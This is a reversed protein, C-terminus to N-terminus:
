TLPRHRMRKRQGEQGCELDGRDLGDADGGGGAIIHDPQADQGGCRPGLRIIRQQGVVARQGLDARRQVIGADADAIDLDDPQLGFVVPVQERTEAGATLRQARAMDQHGAVIAIRHPQGFVKRPKAIKGRRMPQRRIQLEHGPGGHRIQDRRLLDNLRRIPGIAAHQDIRQM